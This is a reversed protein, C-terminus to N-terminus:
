KINCSTKAVSLKLPMILSLLIDYRLVDWWAREPTITGRLTDAKTFKGRINKNIYDLLQKRIDASIQMYVYGKLLNYISTDSITPSAGIKKIERDFLNAANGINGIIFGVFLEKEDESLPKIAETFFRMYNKSFNETPQIKAKAFSALETIGAKKFAPPMQEMNRFATDTHKLDEWNGTIFNCLAMTIILTAKLWTNTITYNNLISDTHKLEQAGTNKMWTNILATDDTKLMETSYNIVPLDSNAKIEKNQALSLKTLLLLGIFFLNIRKM